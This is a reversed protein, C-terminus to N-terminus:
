TLVELIKNLIEIFEKATTIKGFRIRNAKIDDEAANMVLIFEYNSLTDKLEILYNILM